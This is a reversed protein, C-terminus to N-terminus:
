FDLGFLCGAECGAESCFAVMALCHLGFAVSDAVEDIVMGIGFRLTLIIFPGIIINAGNSRTNNGSAMWGAPREPLLREYCPAAPTAAIAIAM